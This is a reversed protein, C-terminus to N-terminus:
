AAPDPSVRVAPAPSPVYGDYKTSSPRPLRISVLLVRWREAVCIKMSPEERPPGAATSGGDGADCANMTPSAALM